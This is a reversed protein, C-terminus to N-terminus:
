SGILNISPPARVSLTFRVYQSGLREGGYLASTLAHFYLHGGQYADLPHHTLLCLSLNVNARRRKMNQSHYSYVMEKGNALTIINVATAGRLSRKKPTNVFNRFAVLLKKM